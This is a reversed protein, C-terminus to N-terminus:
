MNVSELPIWGSSTNLDLSQPATNDSVSPEM